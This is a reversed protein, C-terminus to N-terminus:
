KKFLNKFSKAVEVFEEETIEGKKYSM